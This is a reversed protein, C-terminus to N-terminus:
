QVFALGHAVMLVVVLVILQKALKVLLEVEVVQVLMLLVVQKVLEVM